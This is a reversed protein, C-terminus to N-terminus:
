KATRRGPYAALGHELCYPAGDEAPACCFRQRSADEGRPPHGVPWKCEGARLDSLHFTRPADEGGDLIACGALRIGREPFENQGGMQNEKLARIAAGSSECRVTVVPKVTAPLSLAM